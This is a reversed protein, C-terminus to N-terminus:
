YFCNYYCHFSLKYLRILLMFQLEFLKVLYDFNSVCTSFDVCCVFVM